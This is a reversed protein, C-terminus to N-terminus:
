WFVFNPRLWISTEAMEKRETYVKILIGLQKILSEFFFLEGLLLIMFFFILNNQALYVNSGKLNIWRIEM